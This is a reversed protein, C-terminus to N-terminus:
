PRVRHKVSRGILLQRCFRGITIILNMAIHGIIIDITQRPVVPHWGFITVAM